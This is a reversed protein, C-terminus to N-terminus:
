VKIPPAKVPTKLFVSILITALAILGNIIMPVYKFYEATNKRKTNKIDEEQKQKEYRNKEKAAAAEAEAKATRAIQEALQEKYNRVEPHSPNAEAEARTQYLPFDEMLAYNQLTYAKAILDSTEGCCDSENSIVYIGSEYNPDRIALISYVKNGINTWFKPLVASENDIIKLMFLFSSNTRDIEDHDYVRSSFKELNYDETGPIFTSDIRSIGQAIFVMADAFEVYTVGTSAKLRSKNITLTVTLHLPKHNRYMLDDYKEIILKDIFTRDEVPTALVRNRNDLASDANMQIKIKVVLAAEGGYSINTVPNLRQVIGTRDRIRLVEDTYNHYTITKSYDISDTYAEAAEAVKVENPNTIRNIM